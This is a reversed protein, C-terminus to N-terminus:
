FRLRVTVQMSRMANAAVPTGFQSPVTTSYTGTTPDVVPLTTYWSTYTVHNLVNTASLDADLNYRDHLRFTRRMDANLGFQDPGTISDRRANGWQGVAPTTYAAPNVYRGPSNLYIPQGTLNPRASTTTGTGQVTVPYIPTEPLGSGANLNILFTWEKYVRGRWGSLLTGGGLGMGTTYQMQLTLSNRQDFTSLGRQLNPHLWDQAVQGSLTSGQTISGSAVPGGGGLSYDDDIAKAYTYQLNATFGARLRRRLQVTGAERTSDGNSTRYLYGSPCSPCPNNAGAPYTNPLFEQVGRTGKIGTYIVVMQLSGPLDRQGSLTWTQVYGVRFNPDIAFTDPTVSACPLQQFPSNINFRCNASNPVSLSTSLPAQQAMALAAPEYVSTDHNIAYSSKVLLSSGSIPRWAVSVNPGIGTKDPRVLSSPYNQGTQLNNAV